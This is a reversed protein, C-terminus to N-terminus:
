EPCSSRPQPSSVGRRFARGHGPPRFAPEDREFPALADPLRDLRLPKLLSERRKAEIRNAGALGATRRAGLRQALRDERAERGVETGGPLREHEGCGADVM